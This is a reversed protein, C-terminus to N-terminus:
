LFSPFFQDINLGIQGAAASLYDRAILNQNQFLKDHYAWFKDQQHACYGGQAALQANPHIDALPFDRYIYYIENKYEDMLSRIVPFARQCFPCEFDGFEVIAVKAAPNGFSPDDGSLVNYTGSGLNAGGLGSIQSGYQELKYEGSLIQKRVTLVDKVFGIAFILVIALGGALLFWKWKGKKQKAEIFEM